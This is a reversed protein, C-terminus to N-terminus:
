TGAALTALYRDYAFVRNRKKGTLERAIGMAVLEDMAKSAAPFSLGSRAVVEALSVLADLEAVAAATRQLRRIEAAIRERIELFLAYEKERRREEAHLVTYEYGKLEENIYREANVLTQKRVYDPPVSEANAKTVELYYGFVSNYGVKLSHIGTRKREKEELRAIWSKGDRSVTFLEDLAPDYGERIIGGDRIQVPPDDVISRAILDLVDPMEDIVDRLGALLAAASDSLLRRIEPLRRLSDRLAALDRANAVGMAVRAGLRELDYVGGLVKRLDRRLLHRERIEGVAAQRERIREPLVLPYSLWWRLKRGGM